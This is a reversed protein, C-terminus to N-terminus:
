AEQARRNPSNRAATEKPKPWTHEPHPTTTTTTRQTRARTQRHRPPLGTDTNPKPTNTHPKPNKEPSRNGKPEGNRKAGETQDWGHTKTEWSKRQEEQRRRERKGIESLKRTATKGDNGNEHRGQPTQRRLALHRPKAKPHACTARPTTGPLPKKLEGKRTASTGRERQLRERLFFVSL